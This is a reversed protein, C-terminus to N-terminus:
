EIEVWPVARLEESVVSGPHLWLGSEGLHEGHDSTVVVKGDAEEFLKRLEELVLNLNGRYCDRIFSKEYKGSRVEQMLENHAPNRMVDRGTAEGRKTRERTKRVPSAKKLFRTLRPEGIWPGHPQQYWVICREGEHQSKFAETVEHPPTSGLEDSWGFDWVDVIERFHESAKYEWTPVGYSNVAPVGSYVKVDHEGSWNEKLWAGTFSAPSWVPECDGDYLESFYDYRAADLVVLVDWDTEKILKSQNKM